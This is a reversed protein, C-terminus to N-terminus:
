NDLKAVQWTGNSKLTASGYSTEARGRSSVTQRFERYERGRSDTGIYLVTVSGSAGRDDWYLTDGEEGTTARILAQEHMRQQHEDLQNVITLTLATFALWRFADNDSYYFGFGPYLYGYPRYVRLGLYYRTRPVPRSYHPRVARQPPEVHMSRRTEVQRRPAESRHDRDFSPNRSNRDGIDRRDRPQGRQAARNDPTYLPSNKEMRQPQSREERQPTSREVRQPSQRDTRQAKNRQVDPGQSQDRKQNQKESRQAKAASRDDRREGESQQKESRYGNDFAREAFASSSALAASGAFLSILTLSLAKTNM